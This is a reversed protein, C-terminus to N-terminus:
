LKTITDICYHMKDFQISEYKINVHKGILDNSLKGIYLYQKNDNALMVKTITKCGNGDMKNIGLTYEINKVVCNNIFHIGM